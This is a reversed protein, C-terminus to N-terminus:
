EDDDHLPQNVDASMILSPNNRRKNKIIRFILYICLLALLGTVIALVIVITTQDAAASKCMKASTDWDYGSNCFCSDVGAPKGNSNPDNSCM